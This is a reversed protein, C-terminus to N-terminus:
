RAAALELAAGHRLDRECVTFSHAGIASLLELHIALGAVIAPARDPHLGPVATREALPLASLDQLLEECDARTIVPSGLIAQCTVPTGGCALTTDGAIVRSSTQLLEAAERRLASLEEAAPPDSHLFRETQRVVGLQLSQHGTLTGGSGVAIETSGGGVDLVAVPGSAQVDSTAGAFVLSAEEDGSLVRTPLNHRETITQAFATGNAADRGASTLVAVRQEAGLEDTVECYEAIVALVREMGADSLVGARDVGEGLRTVVSRSAVETLAGADDVDAVLLRTSNTGLDISAVRM